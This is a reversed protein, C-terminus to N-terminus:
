HGDDQAFVESLTHSRPERGPKPKCRQTDADHLPVAQEGIFAAAECLARRAAAPTKRRTGADPRVAWDAMSQAKLLQVRMDICRHRLAQFQALTQGVQRRQGLYCATMACVAEM